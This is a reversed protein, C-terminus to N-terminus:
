ANADRELDAPLPNGRAVNALLSAEHMWQNADKTLSELILDSREQRRAISVADYANVVYKPLRMRVEVTDSDPNRGRAFNPIESHDAM